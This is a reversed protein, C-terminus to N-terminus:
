CMVQCRSIKPVGLYIVLELGSKISNLIPGFSGCFQCQACEMSHLDVFFYSRIEGLDTFLATQDILNVPLSTKVLRLYVNFPVFEQTTM